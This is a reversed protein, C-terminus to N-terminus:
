RRRWWDVTYPRGTVAAYKRQLDPRRELNIRIQQNVDAALARMAEEPGLVRNEVQEIRDKFWRNVLGADIFPSVDVPRASKLADVFPQHFAPDPVIDNVLDRGFRALAPNPPMADGDEVIVRGYEPSALYQLFKLADRWHPSKINIGAARTDTAGSSPRDGVRPLQVAALNGKLNPYNPAQVIYWRGIFIMAAKGSSFWTIGSSGWGGQSSMASAEAATPIVHDVWMFDYYMKMANVAPPEDLASALGDPTFFRGGGGILLDQVFWTNLWNAVALHKQGSKSPTTLVQKCTRVFDDYTWGTKPYPVGHDDFVAKNYIVCNAWVNCPFRYQRGDVLLGDKIAPYTHSPDFGMSKAYPTLDLLVGAQVLNSLQQVDYVDVVDPGTGTACQVILKTQDGGLGPDVVAEEGPFMKGFQATQVKRAPNDDTAWRLRVVNDHPARDLTLEAAAYLVAFLLFGMFFVQKM